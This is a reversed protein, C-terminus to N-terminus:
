ILPPQNAPPYYVQGGQESAYIPNGPTPFDKLRKYYADRFYTTGGKEGKGFEQKEEQKSLMKLDDLSMDKLHKDLEIVKEDYTQPTFPKPDTEPKPTTASKVATGVVEYAGQVAVEKVTQYVAEKLAPVLFSALAAAFGGTSNSSGMGFPSSMPNSTFDSAVWRNARLRMEAQNNMSTSRQLSSMNAAMRLAGEINKNVDPLACSISGNAVLVLLFLSIKHTM